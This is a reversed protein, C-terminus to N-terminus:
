FTFYKSYMGVLPLPKKTGQVVNVIGLIALVLVALQLLPVLMWIFLGIVWIIIEIVFLVLGQKIHFKVFADDKAVLYSIIVLPGLYALVGMPVNKGAASGGSQTTNQDSM